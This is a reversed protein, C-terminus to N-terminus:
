RESPAAFRALRVWAVRPYQRKLNEGAHYVDRGEVVYTAVRGCLSQSDDTTHEWVQFSYRKSREQNEM